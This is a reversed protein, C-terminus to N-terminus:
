DNEEIRWYGFDGNEYGWYHNDDSCNDNLYDIAEEELEEIIIESDIDLYANDSVTNENIAEFFRDYAIQEEKNLKPQWGESEAIEFVICTCHDAGFSGDGYCGEEYDSM